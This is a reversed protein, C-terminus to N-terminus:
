QGKEMEPHTGLLYVLADGANTLGDSDTFGQERQIRSILAQIDPADEVQVKFRMIQHTKLPTASQLEAQVQAELEADEDDLGTILDDYDIDAPEKGFINEFETIDIPLISVIEEPSGIDAFVRALRELDDEGYRGNDVLGIKKAKADDIRGLNIVPVETIGKLIAGRNRHQGGLIQLSGDELERCLIPKFLGFEDISNMLKEENIADMENPNWPNEQLQHPDAYTIHLKSM